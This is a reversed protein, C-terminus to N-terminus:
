YAGRGFLMTPITKAIIALDVYLSWNDVYYLDLRVYDEFSATSRGNVQWFGTIGPKVRLRNHLDEPWDTVESALAPRPGVLSMDGRLVNWLQPLEDISLRRIVRGVRTVRPDDRMKFLPGAGENRDRLDILKDEADVVMSRFKLIGFAKGDRGIRSQRFLVPGPSDLRVAIATVALVPSLLLLAAGAGVLDFLRKASGRWGGQPCPEVSVVAFAGLPQVLIRRCSIDRLASTLEVRVSEYALVRALRNATDDTISRSAIIVCSAGSARVLDVTRDVVADDDSLRDDVVAAVRYGLTPTAALHEELAAADGNGGVLVVPELFRGRLRLSAFRRRVLEREALLLALALTALLALWLRSLDLELLYSMLGTAATFQLVSRVIRRTELLRSRTFRSRYLGNRALVLPWLPAALLGALHERMPEDTGLRARAWTAVVLAVALTVVDCVVLGARIPAPRSRHTVQLLDQPGTDVPRLAVRQQYIPTVSSPFTSRSL